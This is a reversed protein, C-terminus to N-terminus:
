GEGTDIKLAYDRVTLGGSMEAHAWGKGPCSTAETHLTGDLRIKLTLITTDGEALGSNGSLVTLRNSADTSIRADSLHNNNPSSIMQAFVGQKLSGADAYGHTFGISEGNALTWGTGVGGSFSQYSVYSDDTGDSDIYDYAGGKYFNISSDYNVEAFAPVVQILMALIATLCISKSPIRVYDRKM